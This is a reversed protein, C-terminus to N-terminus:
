RPERADALQDRVRTLPRRELKENPNQCFRHNQGPVVVAGVSAQRDHDNAMSGDVRCAPEHQGFESTLLYWTAHHNM